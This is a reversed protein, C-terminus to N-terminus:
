KGRFVLRHALAFNVVMGFGTGIAVALIPYAFFLPITAVLLSYAIFNVAGGAIMAMFYTVFERWLPLHKEVTGFAFNRNVLWTSVVGACFSVLRAGYPGLWDKLLYLVATDVVFGILGAVGFRWFRDILPLLGKRNL